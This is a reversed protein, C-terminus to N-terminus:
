FVSSISYRDLLIDRGDDYLARFSIYKDQCRHSGLPTLALLNDVANLRSM